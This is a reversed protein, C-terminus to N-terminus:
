SSAAVSRGPNECHVLIGWDRWLYWVESNWLMAALKFITECDRDVIDTCYWYQQWALKIVAKKDRLLNKVICEIVDGSVGVIEADFKKKWYQHM